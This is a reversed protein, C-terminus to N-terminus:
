DNSDDDDEFHDIAFGADALLETEDERSLSDCKHVLREMDSIMLYGSAARLVQLRSASDPYHTILASCFPCVADDESRMSDGSGASPM